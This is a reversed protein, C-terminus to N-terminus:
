IGHKILTMVAEDMVQRFRRANIEYHDGPAGPLRSVLAYPSLPEYDRNKRALDVMYLFSSWNFRRALDLSRLLLNDAEEAYEPEYDEYAPVKLRQAMVAGGLCVYCVDKGDEYDPEHWRGMDVAYQESAEVAALDQMAEALLVSPILALGDKATRPIEPKETM